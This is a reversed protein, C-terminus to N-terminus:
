SHLIAERVIVEAIGQHGLSTPHFVRWKKINPFENVSGEHWDDTSIRQQVERSHRHDSGRGGGIAAESMDSPPLNFFWTDSRELDPEHVGEECFRHGEFAADIDVYVAGHVEATARIVDNLMMVLQNLERRKSKTLFDLPRTQSFTARDCYDTRDNFFRAYGTVLLLASPKLRRVAGSVVAHLSDWLGSSEILGRAKVLEAECTSAPRWHYICESVVPYFNAENGGITISVLDSMGIHPIQDRLVTLGKSGGCALNKFNSRTINLLANNAAQIPYSDSYRGCTLDEFSFRPSGAGAGSAYSDGLAAYSQIQAHRPTVPTPATNGILSIWLLLLVTSLGLSAMM